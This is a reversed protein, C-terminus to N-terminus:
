FGSASIRNGHEAGACGICASENLNRFERWPRVGGRVGDMRQRGAKSRVSFRSRLPCAHCSRPCAPRQSNQCDCQPRSRREGLLLGRVTGGLSAGLRLLRAGTTLGPVRRSCRLHGARGHTEPSRRRGRVANGLAASRAQLIGPGGSGQTSEGILGQGRAGGRNGTIGPADSGGAVRGARTLVRRRLAVRRRGRRAPIGRFGLPHWRKRGPRLRGAGVQRSRDIGSTLGVLLCRRGAM